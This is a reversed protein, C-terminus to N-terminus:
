ARGEVRWRTVAEKTWRIDCDGARVMDGIRIHREANPFTRIIVHMILSGPSEPGHAVVVDVSDGPKADSYAFGILTNM